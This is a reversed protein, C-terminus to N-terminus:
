PGISDESPSQICIANSFVYTHTDMHAQYLFLPMHRRASVRASHSTPVCLINFDYLAILAYPLACKLTQVSAFPDATTRVCVSARVCVSPWPSVSASVFVCVCVSLSLLNQNESAAITTTSLWPGCLGSSLPAPLDHASSM